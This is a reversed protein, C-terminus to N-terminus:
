IETQEESQAQASKDPVTQAKESTMYATKSEAWKQKIESPTLKVNEYEGNKTVSYTYANNDDNGLSINKVGIRPVDYKDTATFIRNTPIFLKGYNTDSSTDYISLMSIKPNKTPRILKDSINNLYINTQRANTQEAKPESSPTKGITINTNKPFANKGIRMIDEPINVNTLNECHSFAYEDIDTVSEPITISKLNKCNKFAEVGIRTVGDPIEISTLGTCNEFANYAIETVGDPIIFTGNKIDKNHVERLVNNEIKM